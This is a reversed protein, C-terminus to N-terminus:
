GRSRSGSPCGAESLVEALKQLMEDVDQLTLYGMNGIRFTREKLRGYGQALEVGRERMRRCVELGSLGPPANLCFITPSEYGPQTFLILGLRRVGGLIRNARGAYERFYEGKGKEEVMRLVRNLALIQPIPPTVPTEDKEQSREFREFDFYWGKEGMERSRRMAEESVSVVAMGPPLGLCKQSGAFCVDVGLRDPCLEVGGLASVADVLLLKGHGKVVEALRPLPNLLGLSTECYTLAVAEVEPHRRLEEELQDPLVPRGPETQLVVVERGNAEAVKAYREGFEGTVACLLRRGVCNRISAEMAGTSSSPFLFVRQETELFWRLRNVTDRHLRHYEESRHSFMQRGMEQLVEPYCAVPGATFLKV